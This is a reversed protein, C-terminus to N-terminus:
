IQTNEDKEELLFRWIGDRRRWEGKCGCLQAGQQFHLMAIGMDIKEYGFNEKASITITDNEIIDFIWPQKNRASPAKRVLELGKMIWKQSEKKVKKINPFIEQISKRKKGILSVLKEFGIKTDSNIKGFAILCYIKEGYDLSVDEKIEKHDYTAGVWCTGFGMQVLKLVLYEGYFGIKEAIKKEKSDGILAIYSNCGRILGYSALGDFIEDGDNVIVKFNLGREENNIEDLIEVIKVEEEVTIEEDVFKRRSTRRLIESTLNEEIKM